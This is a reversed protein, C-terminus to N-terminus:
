RKNKQLFRLDILFSLYLLFMIMINLPLKLLENILFVDKPNPIIYQLQQLQERIGQIQGSWYNFDSLKTPMFKSPIYFPNGTYQYLMIGYGIISLFAIISYLIRNLKRVSKNKWAYDILLCRILFYCLILYFIWIPISLWSNMLRGYFYSDNIMYEQFFGNQLLFDQALAEGQEKGNEPYLFELNVYKISDDGTTIIVPRLSKVVGRIYYDKNQCFIINGVANETGYLQFATDTDIICGKSDEQYVYNGFRLTAPTTLSMDGAVLQIPVKATRKLSRNMVEEEGLQTWATIEPLMKAGRSKENDLATKIDKKTIGEAKFRIGQTTYQSRIFATDQLKIISFGVATIFLVALVLYNKIWKM